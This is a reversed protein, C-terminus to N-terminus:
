PELNLAVIFRAVMNYAGVVGILEVLLQDSGLVKRAQAFTADSVKVGRTMEVTMRMVAHEADSFLGANELAADPDRLAQTQAASGGAKQFLPAHQHFEYEAGNVSAIVCIALERLKGDLTLGDRVAGLFVNWGAALKPSYLLLRDLDILEGGRRARIASVLERPEQINKDILPIRTM